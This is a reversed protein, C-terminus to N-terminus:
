AGDESEILGDGGGAGGVGLAGVGAEEDFGFGAGVIEREVLDAQDRLHLVGGNLDVRKLGAHGGCAGAEVRVVLDEADVAEVKVGDSGEETVQLILRALRGGELDLAGGRVSSRFGQ